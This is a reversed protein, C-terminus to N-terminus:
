SPVPRIAQQLEAGQDGLLSTQKEGQSVECSWTVDEKSLSKIAKKFMVIGGATPACGELAAREVWVCAFNEQLGKLWVDTFSVSLGEARRGM